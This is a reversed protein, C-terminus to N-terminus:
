WAPLLELVDDVVVVVVDDVVVDVVVLEVELASRGPVPLGVTVIPSL